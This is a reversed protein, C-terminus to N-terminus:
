KTGGFVKVKEFLGIGLPTSSNSQDETSPYIFRQPFGSAAPNALPINFPNNTRRFDNFVEIQGTLSVYRERLVETLLDANTAFDPDVYDTYTGTPYKAQLAARVANLATLSAAKDNQRIQAEALILQNEVYTVLPFSSALGFISSTATTNINTGTADFFDLYRASEVTKANNKAGGVKLMAELFSNGVGYDGFRRNNLFDGWLNADKGTTGGAHPALLDNAVASVGQGAETIAAAYNGLHLNYRAKLTHAAAIWNAKNGNYFIDGTFGGAGGLDAIAEDLLALVGPYVVTVQDDYAPNPFEELQDAQTFPIDGYLATLGGFTWAKVVKAV